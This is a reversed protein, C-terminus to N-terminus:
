RRERSCVETQHTLTQSKVSIADIERMSLLAYRYFLALLDGRGNQRGLERAESLLDLMNEGGTGVGHMEVDHVVVVHGVEGDSRQHAPRQALGADLGVDVYVQHHLRHIADHRVKGLGARRINRKVRFRRLMHVARKLQDLVFAALGAQHEVRRRWEIIELVGEVLYVHHQQHRHVRAEAALAKDARREVLETLHAFENVGGTPRNPKLDVAADFDIIDALDGRSAGVGEDGARGDEAGALVGVRVAVVGHHLGHARLKGLDFLYISDAARLIAVNGNATFITMISRSPVSISVTGSKAAAAFRM